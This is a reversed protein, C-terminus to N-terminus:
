KIGCEADRKNMLESAEKLTLGIFEDETFHVLNPYYSGIGDYVSGDDFVVLIVNQANARYIRCFIVKKEM